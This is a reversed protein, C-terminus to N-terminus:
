YIISLSRRGSLRELNFTPVVSDLLLRGSENIVFCIDLFGNHGSLDCYPGDALATLSWETILVIPFVVGVVSFSNVMACRVRNQKGKSNDTGALTSASISL